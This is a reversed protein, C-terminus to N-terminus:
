VRTFPKARRRRSRPRRGFSALSSTKISSASPTRATLIQACLRNRYFVESISEVEYLPNRTSGHQIYIRFPDNTTTSAAGGLPCEFVTNYQTGPQVFTIYISKARSFGRYVPVSVVNSPDITTVFSFINDYSIPLEKGSLLHQAFSNSM